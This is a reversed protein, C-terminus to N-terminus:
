LTVMPISYENVASHHDSGLSISRYIQSVLIDQRLLKLAADDLLDQAEALRTVIPVSSRERLIDMLEGADKRMGLVRAYPAYDLDKCALLMDQKFNLLIHLLCRSIRTYTMNKTKLLDCFSDYDRYNDLQNRIRDSLEASVDLYERYGTDRELLLKYYLLDSFDNSSILASDKLSQQLIQWSKEPMQEKM